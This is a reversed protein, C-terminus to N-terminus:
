TRQWDSRWFRSLRDAKNGGRRCVHTLRGRLDRGDNDNIRPTRSIEAGLVMLTQDLLGKAKRHERGDTDNMRTKCGFGIGLVVLTQELLGKAQLDSPLAKDLPANSEM